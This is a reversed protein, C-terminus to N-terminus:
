PTGYSLLYGSYNSTSTAGTLTSYGYITVTAGSISTRFTATTTGASLNDATFLAATCTGLGTNVTGSGSTLTASNMKMNIINSQDTGKFKFTSQVDIIDPKITDAYLTTGAVFVCLACLFIFLNRFKKMTNNREDFDSNRFGFDSIVVAFM